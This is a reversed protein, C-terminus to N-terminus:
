GSKESRVRQGGPLPFPCDGGEGQGGCLCVGVRTYMVYCAARGCGMVWLQLTCKTWMAGAMSRYVGDGCEARSRLPWLGVSLTVASSCAWCLAATSAPDPAAALPLTSALGLAVGMLTCGGGGAAGEVVVVVAVVLSLLLLPKEEMSLEM